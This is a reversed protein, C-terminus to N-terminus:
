KEHLFEQLAVLCDFGVIYGHHTLLILEGSQLDVCYSNDGVTGAFEYQSHVKKGILEHGHLIYKIHSNRKLIMDLLPANLTAKQSCTLQLSQHNVSFVQCYNNVGGSKGRTTTIFGNDRRLAFTGYIRGNQEYKPYNDLVYSEDPSLSEVNYAVIQTTYFKENILKVILDVQEKDSVHFNAGDQTYAIIKNDKTNFAINAKSQFLLSKIESESKNVQILVLLKRPYKKKFELIDNLQEYNTIIAIYEELNIENNNLNIEEFVLDSSVQLLDNSLYNFINKGLLIVKM